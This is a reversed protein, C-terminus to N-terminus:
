LIFTGRRRVNTVRRGALGHIFAPVEPRAVARPWLVEIEQITRQGILRQLGQAIVEVEPLEPM